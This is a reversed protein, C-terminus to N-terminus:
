SRMYSSWRREGTAGAGSGEPAFLPRRIASAGGPPNYFHSTGGRSALYGGPSVGAFSEFARIFHAQDFYGHALAADLSGSLRGLALDRAAHQFRALGHFAKPSMGLAAKFSRELQRRGIPLGEAVADIRCEAHGYYLSAAVADIWGDARRWARLWKVLQGEILGVRTRGDVAGAVREGWRRGDLGWLQEASISQDFMEGLGARCFHRLGGMRFRVATFVTAGVPELPWRRRRVCLVHARGNACAFPTGHHIFLDNGTGPLVIPLPEGLGSTWTWYREVYPALEACPKWSSTTM